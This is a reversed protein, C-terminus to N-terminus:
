ESLEQGEGWIFRLRWQYALALDVDPLNHRRQTADMAQVLAYEKTCLGENVMVGAAQEEDPHIILNQWNMM